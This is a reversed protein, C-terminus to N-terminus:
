GRSHVWLLSFWLRRGEFLIIFQALCLAALWGWPGYAIVGPVGMIFSLSLVRLNIPLVKNSQDSVTLYGSYATGFIGLTIWVIGWALLNEHQPQYEGFIYKIIIESGVSATLAIVCACLIYIALVIRLLKLYDTTKEKYLAALKPFAAIHAILSAGTAANALRVVAAYAGAQEPGMLFNIILPGSNAYLSAVLQSGFLPFGTRLYAIPNKWAISRFENKLLIISIFFTGCAVLLPGITLSIAAVLVANSHQNDLFLLGSTLTALVGVITVISLQVYKNESQLHWGTNMAAAISLASIIWIQTGTISQGVFAGVLIAITAATMVLLLLLIKASTVRCVVDLATEAQTRNAFHYPASLQFAYSIVTVGFTAWTLAITITGFATLGIERIIHPILVLPILANVGYQITLALNNILYQKIM